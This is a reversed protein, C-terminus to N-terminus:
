DTKAQYEWLRLSGDSVCKMRWSYLFFLFSAANRQKAVIGSSIKPKSNGKSWKRPFADGSSRSTFPRSIWWLTGRLSNEQRNRHYGWKHDVARGEGEGRTFGSSISANCQLYHSSLPSIPLLISCQEKKRPVTIWSQCAWCCCPFIIVCLKIGSLTFLVWPVLHKESLLKFM